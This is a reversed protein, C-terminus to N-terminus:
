GRKRIKLLIIAAIVMLEGFIFNNFVIRSFFDIFFQQPFVKILIDESSFLWTGPDFFLEHFNGFLWGFNLSLIFFLISLSMSVIGSYLLISTIIKKTHKGYKLLLFLLVIFLLASIYLAYSFGDIVDRVDYLHAIERENFYSNLEEKGKFFNFLNTLFVDWREIYLDYKGFENLYFSKDYLLFYFNSLLVVVSLLIVLAILLIRHLASKGGTM